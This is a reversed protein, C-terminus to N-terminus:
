GATTNSRLWKVAGVSTGRDDQAYLEIHRGDGNARCWAGYDAPGTGCGELECRASDRRFLETKFYDGCYPNAQFYNGGYPEDNIYGGNYLEAHFYDGHTAAKGAASWANIGNGTGNAREAQASHGQSSPCGM